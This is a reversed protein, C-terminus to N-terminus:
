SYQAILSNYILQIKAKDQTSLTCSDGDPATTIVFDAQRNAITLTSTISEDYDDPSTLEISVIDGNQVYSSSGRAVSNKYLTGRDVSALALGNSRLGDITIDNSM